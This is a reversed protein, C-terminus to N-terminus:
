TKKNKVFITIVVILAIIIILFVAIELFPINIRDEVPNAKSLPTNIYVRVASEYNFAGDPNKENQWEMWGIIIEVYCVMVQIHGVYIVGTKGPFEAKILFRFNRDSLQDDDWENGWTEESGGYYQTSEGAENIWTNRFDTSTWSEVMDGSLEVIIGGDGGNAYAEISINIGTIVELGEPLSIGFAFYDKGMWVM